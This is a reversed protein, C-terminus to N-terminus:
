DSRRNAANLLLKLVEEPVDKTSISVTKVEVVSEILSDWAFIREEFVVCNKLDFTFM